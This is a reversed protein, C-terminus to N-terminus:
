MGTINGAQEIRVPFTGQNLSTGAHPADFTTITGTAASRVFGHAVNPATLYIGTIDGPANNNVGLTGQLAATGAGPVDITTFTYTPTSAGGAQGSASGALLLALLTMVSIKACLRSQWIGPRKGNMTAM